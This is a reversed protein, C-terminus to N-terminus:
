EERGEWREGLRPAGGPPGVPRRRLPEAGTGPGEALRVHPRVGRIPALGALHSAVSRGDPLAAGPPLLEALPVLVFARETLRPHPVELDPEDVREDGYLLIDVDLTRPGHRPERSRDRGHAAEVEHCLDLLERPRRRTAVRAVLNLFDPQEVGGVPETEYVGSIEEVATEEDADLDRLAAELNALRDGVNSGLGLFATVERRFLARLRSM